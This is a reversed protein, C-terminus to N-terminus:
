RADCGLSFHLAIQLRYHILLTYLSQTTQEDGDHSANLLWSEMGDM